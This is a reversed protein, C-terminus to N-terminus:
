KIVIVKMPIDSIPRDSTGTEQTAIKDIVEKGAVVEGFVTYEKDLFPTGGQEMYAKKQEASYQIGKRREMMKLQAEEIPTGQVIYFQSGSSKKEPNVADGTRAASLAGKVHVLSPDIEADIQYGPSGGGLQKRAPAGKSDPDGGQIMFGQIVRHFLLSDYFHENALKMFNAKHKPTEDYLKVLMNGHPTQIEVLPEDPPKVEIVRESQRSKKGNSAELIVTYRGSQVYRHKPNIDTSQKGDGFDWSFFEAKESQNIFEINTPAKM